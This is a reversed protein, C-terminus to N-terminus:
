GYRQERWPDAHNHYGRVEWYGPEDRSVFRIGTIWKASKWFYLDPVLARAPAGHRRAFPRGNMRYTILVNPATAEALPVNATYGHAAEFIVHRASSKVKAKDALAAVRVGRFSAGLVSWGTVCHVDTSQETQPLALLEDYSLELPKAVLGHVRLRFSKASPDGAQGGMPKLERIVRQGPPLRPRGDKRTEARAQSTLDDGAIQYIGGGLAVIATGAVANRIFDRRGMRPRLPSHGPDREDREPM